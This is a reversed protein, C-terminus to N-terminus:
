KSIEMNLPITITFCVGEGSQSECSIEGHLKQKIQNYVIHLGLGSGLQKNTTFFPDFVKPLIDEPIGNGNDRYDIKLKDADRRAEIDIRGDTRDKFGHVASNVLLNTLISAFAGPYSYIELDDPAYIKVEINKEKMRPGVSFLIDELYAKLLFSREQETSQDISVQKFSQVLDGTRQLNKLILSMSEYATKLYGELETRKMTNDQYNRALAVTKDKLSSAATIGIGVPTNIEHAVGTVLSGLSAMKEAEILQKQTEKLETLAKSLQDRQQSIHENKERLMENIKQKAQYRRYLVFALILILLAIAYTYTQQTRRRRLELEKIENNKRLLLNEKEKKETEYKVNMEAIKKSKEENFLSDRLTSAKKFWSLANRYDKKDAHIDALIRYNLEVLDKIGAENALELSKNAYRIAEGHNGYHLAIESMFQYVRAEGELFAIQKFIRLAEDLYKQSKRYEELRLWAEGLGINAVGMFQLNQAVIGLRLSEAYYQIAKRYEGRDKYIEGINNLPIAVGLSDGAERYMASAKEYYELAKDTNGWAHYLVAVNNMGRKVLETQGTNEFVRISNLFYGLATEYQGRNMLLGAVNFQITAVRVSDGQEKVIEISQLYTELAQDYNGVSMAVSALSNLSGSIIKKSGIELGIKHSELLYNDRALEFNGMMVHANGILMLAMGESERDGQERSRKLAKEGLAICEDPASYLLEKALDNIVTHYDHGTEGRKEMEEIRARLSDARAQSYVPVIMILFALLLVIFRTM